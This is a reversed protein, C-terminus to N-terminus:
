VFKNDKMTGADHFFEHNSFSPPRRLGTSYARVGTLAADENKRWKRGPDKRGGDRGPNTVEIAFKNKTGNGFRTFTLAQALLIRSHSEDWARSGPSM